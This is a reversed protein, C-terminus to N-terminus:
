RVHSAPNKKAQAISTVRALEQVLTKPIKVSRNYRRYTERVFAQERQDLGPQGCPNDETAGLAAFLEEHLPNIIREHIMGQLLSIQEARGIIAKRPMYTEQDWGLLAVTHSLLQIEADLQKLKTLQKKM